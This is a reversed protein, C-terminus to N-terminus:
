QLLDGRVLHLRALCPPEFRQVGKKPGLPTREADAEVAVQRRVQICPGRESVAPVNREGERQREIHHTLCATQGPRGAGSRGTSVGDHNGIVKAHHQETSHAGVLHEVAIGIIPVAMRPLRGGTGRVTPDKMGHSVVMIGALREHRPPLSSTTKPPFAPNLRGVSVHSHFGPVTSRGACTSFTWRALVCYRGNGAM